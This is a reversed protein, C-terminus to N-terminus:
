SCAEARDRGACGTREPAVVLMGIREDRYPLELVQVDGSQCYRLEREANMFPVKAARDGHLHFAADATSRSSRAFRGRRALFLSATSRLQM